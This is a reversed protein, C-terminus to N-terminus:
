PTRSQSAEHELAAIVIYRACAQYEMMDVIRITRPSTSGHAAKKDRELNIKRILPGLRDKNGYGVEEQFDLGINRLRLALKRDDKPPDGIVAEIAKFANQLATELANQEHGTNAAHTPNYVVDEIQGPYVYFNHHSVALFRVADFLKASAYVYPVLRWFDEFHIEAFRTATGIAYTANITVRDSWDRSAELQILADLSVAEQDKVLEKPVRLVVAEENTDMFPGCITSATYLIAEAIHIANSDNKKYWPFRFFYRLDAMGYGDARLDVPWLRISLYKATRRAISLHKNATGPRLPPCGLQLLLYCVRDGDEVPPEPRKVEGFKIAVKV